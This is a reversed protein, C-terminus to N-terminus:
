GSAAAPDSPLFPASVETPIRMLRRTAPDIIAWTTKARVVLKGAANRFHINRVFRAGKPVEDIFTEADVSEGQGINGHYDIEHRVVVWAFAAVDQPRADQEWHATAIIEMWQVWVANNVHGLQDIHERSATFTLKFSNSM